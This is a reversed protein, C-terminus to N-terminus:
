MGALPGFVAVGVLAVTVVSASHVVLTSTPRGLFEGSFAPTCRLSIALVRGGDLASVPLANMLAVNANLLAVWFCLNTLAGLSAVTAATPAAGGVFVWGFYATYAAEASAAVPSRLVAFAAVAVLLNHFTGIAYVRLKSRASAADLADAPLVYAALPVVGLFLAIGWEEVPVGEARCALAHGTEHVVTAVLLAAVVYPAAAVPMFANLGLVAVTSAPDNLATARSRGLALYAATAVLALATVQLSALTAIGVDSWRKWLPRDAIGGFATTGRTSHWYLTLFGVKLGPPLRANLATELAAIRDSLPRAM